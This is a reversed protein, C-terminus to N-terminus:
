VSERKTEVLARVSSTRTNRRIYERLHDEHYRVGGEAKVYDPGRGECRWRELTSHPRGLFAAAEKTTLMRGVIMPAPQRPERAPIAFARNQRDGTESPRRTMQPPLDASSPDIPQPDSAGAPVDTCSASRRFAPRRPIFTQSSMPSSWSLFQTLPQFPPRSCRLSPKSRIGFETLRRAFSRCQLVAASASPASLPSDHTSLTTM